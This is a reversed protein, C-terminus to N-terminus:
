WPKTLALWWKELDEVDVIRWAEGPYIRYTLKGQANWQIEEWNHYLLLSKLQYESLKNSM